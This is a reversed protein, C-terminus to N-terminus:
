AKARGEIVRWKDVSEAAAQIADYNINFLSCARRRRIESEHAQLAMEVSRCYEIQQKIFQPLEKNEEAADQKIRDLRKSHEEFVARVGSGEFLLNFCKRQVVDAK